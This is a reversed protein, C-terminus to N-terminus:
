CSWGSSAETLSKKYSVDTIIQISNEHKAIVYALVLVDDTFYTKWSNEYDKKQGINILDHNLEGKLLDLQITYEKQISKLSGSIHCKSCVLKM